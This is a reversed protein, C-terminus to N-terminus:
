SLIEEIDRSNGIVRYPELGAPHKAAFRALLEAVRQPDSLNFRGPKLCLVGHHPEGTARFIRTYRKFDNCNSTVICRGTRAAHRLQAEVSAGQMGDGKWDTLDIGLARACEAIYPNMCEDLYYRM